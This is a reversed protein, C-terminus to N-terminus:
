TKNKLQALAAFPHAPPPAAGDFDADAVQLKLTKPCQSHMPVLPLALLLEDEVLALLDFDRSLVLLDEQASEDEAEAQAETAVFRFDREFAVPTAYPDLCRQCTLPVATQASVTLWVAEGGGADVHLTGRAVYAVGVDGVDGQALETLRQLSRLPVTGQLSAGARAFSDIPLHHPDYAPKM